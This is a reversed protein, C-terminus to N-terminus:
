MPSKIKCEDKTMERKDIRIECKENKRKGMEQKTDKM